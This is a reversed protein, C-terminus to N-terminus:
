DGRFGITKSRSMVKSLLSGGSKSTLDRKKKFYSTNSNFGSQSQSESSVFVHSSAVSVRTSSSSNKRSLVEAGTTFTTKRKRGVRSAILAVSLSSEKTIFLSAPEVSSDEHIKTKKAGNSNERRIGRKTGLSTQCLCFIMLLRLESM